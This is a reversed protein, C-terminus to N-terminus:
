AARHIARVPRWMNEDDGKEVIKNERLRTLAKRVTDPKVDPVVRRCHDLLAGWAAGGPHETLFRLIIESTSVRAPIADNQGGAEVPAAPVDFQQVVAPHVGADDARAPAAPAGPDPMRAVPAPPVLVDNAPAPVVAADADAAPRVDAATFLADDVRHPVDHGDTDLAQPVSPPQVHADDPSVLPLLAKTDLAGLISLAPGLADHLRRRTAEGVADAVATAITDLLRTVDRELRDRPNDLAETTM